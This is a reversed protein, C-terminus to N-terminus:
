ARLSQSPAGGPSHIRALMAYGRYAARFDIAAGTRASIDALVQSLGIRPTVHFLRLWSRLMARFWGPLGDAAGFDVVHAEGKPRLVHIAQDLAGAWDPIMSLSYSFFVRDFASLGFTAAPDLATADGLAFAIRNGVGAKDAARKATELMESSIDIGYLQATPYIEALAILNRGTGCGIELVTGGIPVALDQLLRDRGLLYYKRTADYIYRQRRYIQNMLMHHSRSIESAADIM